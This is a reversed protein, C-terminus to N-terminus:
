ETNMNANAAQVQQDGTTNEKEQATQNGNTLDPQQVAQAAANQAEEENRRNANKTNKNNKEPQGKTTKTTAANAVTPAQVPASAKIEEDATQMMGQNDDDGIESFFVPLQM